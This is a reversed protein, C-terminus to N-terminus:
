LTQNNQSLWHLTNLVFQKWNYGVTNMGIAQTNGNGDQMQMATFGNSDGFAVIRGKGVFGALCQSDGYGSPGGFPHRVNLSHQSLKLINTFSKGKLASGGFTIIEDVKEGERM